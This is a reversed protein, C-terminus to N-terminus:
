RLGRGLPSLTRPPVQQADPFGAQHGEDLDLVQLGVEAGRVADVPRHVADRKV